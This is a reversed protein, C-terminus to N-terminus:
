EYDKNDAKQKQQYKLDDVQKQLLKRQDDLALLGDVDINRKKKRCIEKYASVDERVKKLDIM